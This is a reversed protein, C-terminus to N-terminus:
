YCALSKGSGGLSERDALKGSAEGYPKEPGNFDDYWITASDNEQPQHELPVVYEIRPITAGMPEAAATPLSAVLVILALVCFVNNIPRLKKYSM